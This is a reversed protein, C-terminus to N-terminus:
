TLLPILALAPLILFNVLLTKSPPASPTSPLAFLRFSLNLYYVLNITSGFILILTLAPTQTIISELVLWKPFFGSFPPLGALSLLLLPASLLPLSPSLINTKTKPTISTRSIFSLFLPLSIIIYFLFYTLAVSSSSIRAAIIWSIHGISSYALLPRLQTQNLGGLGSVLLGIFIIPFLLNNIPLPTFILLTIPAIKQWTALLLCIPWRLAAIIPPLWFHCPAIGIKLLLALILGIILINPFQNSNFIFLTSTLLLLGSGIAQILFYKIIAPTEQNSYSSALLPLFSLLNLELGMWVFFWSNSSLSLITGLILTSTFLSSSPFLSRAM